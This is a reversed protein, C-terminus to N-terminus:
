SRPRRHEHRTCSLRDAYHHISHRVSVIFQTRPQQCTHLTDRSACYAGTACAEAQTGGLAVWTASTMSLRETQRRSAPLRRLMEVAGYKWLRLRGCLGHEGSIGTACAEAQTQAVGRRAGSWRWRRPVEARRVFDAQLVPKLRHGWGRCGIDHKDHQPAGDAQM